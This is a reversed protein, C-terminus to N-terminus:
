VEGQNTFIQDEYMDRVSKKKKKLDIESHFLSFFRDAAIRANLLSGLAEVSTDFQSSSKQPKFVCYNRWELSESLM